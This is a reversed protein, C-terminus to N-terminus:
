VIKQLLKKKKSNLLRGMFQLRSENCLYVPTTFTSTTRQILQKAVM